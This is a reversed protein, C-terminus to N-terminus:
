YQFHVFAFLPLAVRDHGLVLAASDLDLLPAAGEQQAPVAHIQPRGIKRVKGLVVQLWILRLRPPPNSFAVRIAHDVVYASPLINSASRIRRPTNKPMPM